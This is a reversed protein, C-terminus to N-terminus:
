FAARFGAVVGRLPQLTRGRVAVCGALFVIGLLYWALSCRARLNRLGGRRWEPFIYKKWFVVQSSVQAVSVFYDRQPNLRTTGGLHRCRVGPVMLCRGGARHWSYILAGDERLAYVSKRQLDLDGVAGSAIAFAGSVALVAGAGGRTEWGLPPPETLPYYYGGGPNYDIGGQRRPVAIGWFANLWRQLGPRPWLEPWYPVACIARGSHLPELLVELARPELVIDDDLLVVLPLAAARLGAARQTVMGRPAAVFRVLPQDVRWPSADEPFAIIIEGPLITQRELSALTQRLFENDGVSRIAVSYAPRDGRVM